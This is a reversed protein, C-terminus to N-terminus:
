ELRVNYKKLIRIADDVEEKTDCLKAISIAKRVDKTQIEEYVKQAIYKALEEKKNYKKVLLNSVVKIYEQKKYKEFKFVLFRSVLEKPIKKIRNGAAFVNARLRITRFRNYKAETLKGNEMLNLLVAMDKPSLKDIEDILIYRPQLEFIVQTLGAKSLTTGDLYVAKPLRELELMFLSKGTAPEGIFLVHVHRNEKIIKMLLKKIDDYGIITSFLDKPIETKTEEQPKEDTQIYKEINDLIQKTLERDILKYKSGSHSKYYLYAVNFVVMKQIKYPECPIEHWEFWAYKEKNGYKEKNKEEVEIARKLIRIFDDDSKILKLIGKEIEEKEIKPKETILDITM